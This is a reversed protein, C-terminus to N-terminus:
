DAPVVFGSKLLLLNKIKLTESTRDFIYSPLGEPMPLKKEGQKDHYPAKGTFCYYSCAAM